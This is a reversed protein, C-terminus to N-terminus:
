YLFALIIHWSSLVTMFVIRMIETNFTRITHTNFAYYILLICAYYKNIITSIVAKYILALPDSALVTVFCCMDINNGLPLSLITIM